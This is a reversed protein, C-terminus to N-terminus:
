GGDGDEHRLTPIVAPMMNALKATSASALIALKPRAATVRGRTSETAIAIKGELEGPQLKGAYARDVKVVSAGSFDVAVPEMTTANEQTLTFKNTGADIHLQIEQIEAAHVPVAQFWGGASAPQLGIKWFRQAIFEGARELEPTGQGRGKMKDSALYYVDKKLHNSLSDGATLVLACCALATLRFLM